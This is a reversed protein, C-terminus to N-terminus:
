VTANQLPAGAADIVQATFRQIQGTPLSSPRFPTLSLSGTPPFGISGSQGALTMSMYLPGSCCESYDLEYQYVGAAPFKVVVTNPIGNQWCGAAVVGLQSFPTVGTPPSNPPGSVWSAGGGVGLTYCDDVALYITQAGSTKITFSGTFVAQFQALNGLGAQLGNGQAVITGTFYGNADTIVDTFPRTSTGVGSNNGPIPNNSNSLPNFNINPFTQTFVPTATPPTNFPGSNGSNSFFRALVPGTSIPQAPVLWSVNVSNSNQGTYSATVTDTGSNAGTYTFTATGTADTTANGSTANVGTVAPSQVGRTTRTKRYPPRLKPMEPRIGWPLGM